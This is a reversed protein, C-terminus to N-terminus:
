IKFREVMKQLDNSLQELQEAGSEIEQYSLQMDSYGGQIHVMNRNIEETVSSQEEAATAVQENMLNIENISSSIHMIDEGTKQVEVVSKDVMALGNQMAAQAADSSSHLEGIMTEIERTSEKTQMALSRVEDAVVAFGRGSEGARAAEIAANLALLNTKESIEKIVNLFKDINSSAHKLQETVQSASNLEKALLNINVITEEVEQNGHVSETTAKETEASAQMANRAIDAVTSSMETTATVVQTVQDSGSDIKESIARTHKSSDAVKVQLTNSSSQIQSVLNQLHSILQNVTNSIEGLEEDTHIDVRTTLDDSEIIQKLKITIEHIGKNLQWVIFLSLLITLTLPIVILLSITFLDQNAKSILQENTTQLEALLATEVQKLLNIKNTITKFWATADRNFEGNSMNKLAHNRYEQVEEVADGKVTTQYISLQKPTAHAKFKTIYADQEALLRIFKELLAPTFENKAFVNSLVAREIGAREKYQLFSGVAVASLALEIDSNDNATNDIISLLKANLDTYFAVEEKVSISVKDIRQRINNVSNLDSNLSNFLSELSSPLIASNVFHNLAQLKSDTDVRQKKVINAFKNGKSGLFGASAGREKQLEHVLTASVTAADTLVQMEQLTSKNQYTDIFQQGAFYIFGLLPLFTLAFLKCRISLNELFNLMM